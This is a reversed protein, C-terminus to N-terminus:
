LQLATPQIKPGRSPPDKMKDLVASTFVRALLFYGGYWFGQVLASQAKSVHLSNQFHKNLVDIIGNCLGSLCFLCCVLLFTRLHSTEDATRFM